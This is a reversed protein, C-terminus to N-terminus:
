DWLPPLPDSVIDYKKDGGSLMSKDIDRASATSRSKIKPPPPPRASIIVLKTKQAVNFKIFPGKRMKM